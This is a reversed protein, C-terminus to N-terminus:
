MVGMGSFRTPPLLLVWWSAGGVLVPLGPLVLLVLLLLLVEPLEDPFLPRLFKTSGQAM